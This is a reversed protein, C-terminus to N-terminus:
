YKTDKELNVGRKKLGEILYDIGKFDERTLILDKRRINPSYEENKFVFRFRRNQRKIANYFTGAGSFTSQVRKEFISEIDNVTFNLTKDDEILTIIANEIVLSKTRNKSKKKTKILYLGVASALIYILPMASTTTSRMGTILGFISLIIIIWYVYIVRKVQNVFQFSVKEEGRLAREVSEKTM